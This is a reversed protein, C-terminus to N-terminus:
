GLRQALAQRIEDFVGNWDQARMQRFLRATPYWPSDARDRMWQWGAAFPLAIWVPVGLAGALHPVSTDSSIVLDLNKMLAATDMFAGHSRDFDDGPHFIPVNAAAFEEQTAGHQLSVLSIPLSLLSAFRELPINRLSFSGQGPRGRWNIGIRLGPLAALKERWHTVLDPDAFLYPVDAPVKDVTTRFIRPLSLLPSHFDFPPRNYNEAIIQDVGPCTSLLQMLPKPCEAIVTAGRAKVLRSYRIFLLTDGLGQEAHLLVTKGELPQGEWQPRGFQREPIQGTKWRWEYERWGPEFDGSALLVMAHNTHAAAFDPKLAIAREFAQRAEDWQSQMQLANGLNCHAEAMNPDFQLANHICVLAEDLQNKDRYAYGLNNHAKAHGPELELTRRYSAIADDIRGLGQLALGMNYHIEASGPQLRVAHKLYQVAVDNHNLQTALVGLLNWASVFNPDAVLIQRYLQEAERARGARHHSIALEIAEQITPMPWEM